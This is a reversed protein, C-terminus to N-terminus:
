TTLRQCAQNIQEDTATLAIRVYPKGAAGYFSGPAVLIGREALRDVTVWGDTGDTAWIFLSGESHEINLGVAALAPLLKDRRARYRERQHQVSECDTYAAVAAALNPNPVMLGLHKRATLLERVLLPDGSVSGVRYGALNSRKSLSHLALLGTHNCDSVADSLVSKPREDSWWLDLYCEDSAVVAGCARAAAVIARMEAVSAIRGTPNAPSNVWVLSVAPDNAWADINSSRIIRTGAARAGVEYTPYALEPVVVTDDPGLGLLLPLFAVAEKLGLTPIVSSPSCHSVGCESKLWSCVAERFAPTGETRPYGPSNAAAALATRIVEPVDDVPTGMSLDILGDPHASARQKASELTDWPFDPLRAALPTGHSRM